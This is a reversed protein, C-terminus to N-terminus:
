VDVCRIVKKHAESLVKGLAPVEASSGRGFVIAQALEITLEAGAKASALAEAFSLYKEVENVLPVLNTEDNHGGLARLLAPSKALSRIHGRSAESADLSAHAAEGPLPLHKVLGAKFTALQEASLAAGSPKVVGAQLMRELEGRVKEFSGGFKLLEGLWEKWMDQNNSQAKMDAKSGKAVDIRARGCPFTKLAKFVVSGQNSLAATLEEMHAQSGLADQLVAAPAVLIALQRMEAGVKASAISGQCASLHFTEVLEQLKAAGADDVKEQTSSLVRGSLLELQMAEIDAATDLFRSLKADALSAWFDSASHAVNAGVGHMAKRFYSPFPNPVPPDHTALLNCQSTYDDYTKQNGM